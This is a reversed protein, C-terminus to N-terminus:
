MVSGVVAGLRLGSRRHLAGPAGDQGGGALEERSEVEVGALDAAEIATSVDITGVSRRGNAPEGHQRCSRNM